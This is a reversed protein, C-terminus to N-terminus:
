SRRSKLTPEQIKGFTRDDIRDILSIILEKRGERQYTLVLRLKIKSIRLFFLVTTDVTHLHPAAVFLDGQDVIGRCTRGIVITGTQVDKDGVARSIDAVNQSTKEISPDM